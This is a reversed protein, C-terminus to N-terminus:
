NNWNMEVPSRQRLLELELKRQSIQQKIQLALDALLDIEGAKQSARITKMLEYLEGSKQASIEQQAENLRRRLQAIRRIVKVLRSAVDEGTIAEPDQGFEIMLKEISAQDGKAYAVNVQAMLVTRREREADTTARDPHMLKAAQRFLQKLEPTIKVLTQQQNEVIGAEQASKQAQLRAAELQANNLDDGAQLKAIQLNLWDLEVYLRGITQYYYHQFRVSEAKLTELMLEATAVYDEFTAQKSELRYLEQEEPLIM